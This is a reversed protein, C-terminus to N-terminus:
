YQTPLISGGLFTNGGRGTDRDTVLERVRIRACAGGGPRRVEVYAVGSGASGRPSNISEIPEGAPSAQAARHNTRM